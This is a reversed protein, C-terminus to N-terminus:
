CDPLTRLIQSRSSQSYRGSQRLSLRSMGPSRVSCLQDLGRLLNQVVHAKATGQAYWSWDYKVKQGVEPPLHRQLEHQDVTVGADRSLAISFHTFRVPMNGLTELSASCVQVFLSAILSM